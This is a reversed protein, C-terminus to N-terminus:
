NISSSEDLSRLFAFIKETPFGIVNNVSGEIRDILMDGHKQVAYSGAKDLVHVLELYRAIVADDLKKFFVRSHEIFHINADDGPSL